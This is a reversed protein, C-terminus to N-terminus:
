DRAKRLIEKGRHAKDHITHLTKIASLIRGGALHGHCEAAGQVVDDFLAIADMRAGDAHYPWPKPVATM